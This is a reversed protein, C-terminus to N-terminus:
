CETATHNLPSVYWNSKYFFVVNLKVSHMDPIDRVETLIKSQYERKEAKVFELMKDRLDTLQDMTTGFKVVIPVAEALGGTRRM